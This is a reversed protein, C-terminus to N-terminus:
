NAACHADYADALASYDVGFSSAVRYCEDPFESDGISMLALLRSLAREIDAPKTSPAKNM